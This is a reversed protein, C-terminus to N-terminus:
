EIFDSQNSPNFFAPDFPDGVYIPVPLTAWGGDSRIRKITKACKADDTIFHTIGEIQCQALLKFDDKIACRDYADPRRALNAATLIATPGSHDINFPLTLFNQLPLDKLDQRVQFESAVVTSLYMIVTREIFVRYYDKATDHHNRSSDSLSILYSTDLLVGQM